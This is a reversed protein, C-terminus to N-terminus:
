ERITAQDVYILHTQDRAEVATKATEVRALGKGNLQPGEGM